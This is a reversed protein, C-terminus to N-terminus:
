QNKLHHVTAELQEYFDEGYKRILAEKAFQYVPIKLEDGLSCAANCIDWKDYNIFHTNTIPDETVRIPYLHCSIPKRLPISGKQYAKEIGCQAIGNDMILFVCAGDTQLSAGDFNTKSFKQHFGSESIVRRGEDSLTDIFEPLHDTIINIEETNLPAGYDGEWCCAGKCKELNCVFNKEVVEDSILKNDIMIMACFYVLTKLNYTILIHFYILNLHLDKHM